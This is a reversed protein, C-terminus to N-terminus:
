RPLFAEPTPIGHREMGQKAACGTRINMAEVIAQRPPTFRRRGAM